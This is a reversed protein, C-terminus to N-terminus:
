KNFSFLFFTYRRPITLLAKNENQANKVAAEENASLLGTHREPNVIAINLKESFLFPVM